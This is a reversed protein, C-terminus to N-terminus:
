VGAFCGDVRAVLDAPLPGADACALCARLEERNKIGLVVTDVDAMALAYRHGLDAASMGLEAALARYPVVQRSTGLSMSIM